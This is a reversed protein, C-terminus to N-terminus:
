QQAKLPPRGASVPEDALRRLLRAASAAHWSQGERSRIGNENLWRALARCTHVGSAQAREVEDTLGSAFSAASAKHAAALSAGNKGLRVGRAKAAALAAKTRDRIMQREHEAFVALMQIMMRNASPMDAARIEVNAELLQAIFVLSRSLRDLKAILLVAKKRRCLDLAAQLQPRDRVAGSEVETFTTILAADTSCVYSLIAANQADLGLGSHEQKTTSVRLYGVYTCSIPTM